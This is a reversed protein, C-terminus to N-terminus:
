LLNLFACQIEFQVEECKLHANKYDGSSCQERTKMVATGTSNRSVVFNHLKRIGQLEAHKSDV